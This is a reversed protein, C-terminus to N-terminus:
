CRKKHGVMSRDRYHPSSSPPCLNGL